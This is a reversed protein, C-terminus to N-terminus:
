PKMERKIRKIMKQKRQKEVEKEIKMQLCDLLSELELGLNNGLAEDVIRYYKEKRKDINKYEDTKQWKKLMDSPSLRCIECIRFFKDLIIESQGKKIKTITSDDVGLESAIRHQTFGKKVCENILFEFLQPFIRKM